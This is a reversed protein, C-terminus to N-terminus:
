KTIIQVRLYDNTSSLYLTAHIFGKNHPWSKYKVSHVNNINLGFSSKIVAIHSDICDHKTKTIAYGDKCKNWQEFFDGKESVLLIWDYSKAGDRSEDLHYFVVKNDKLISTGIVDKLLNINSVNTPEIIMLDDLNKNSTCAFM